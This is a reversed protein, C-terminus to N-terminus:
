NVSLGKFKKVGKRAGGVGSMIWGADKISEGVTPEFQEVVAGVGAVALGAYTLYGNIMWVLSLIASM